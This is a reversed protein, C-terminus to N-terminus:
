ELLSCYDFGVSVKSQVCIINLSEEEIEEFITNM